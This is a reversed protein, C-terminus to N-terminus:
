TQVKLQSIEQNTVSLSEIVDVCIDRREKVQKEMDAVKRTWEDRMQREQKGLQEIEKDMQRQMADAKDKEARM